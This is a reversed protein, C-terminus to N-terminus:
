CDRAAGLLFEEVWGCSKELGEIRVERVVELDYYLFSRESHLNLDCNSICNEIEELFIGSGRWCIAGCAPPAM